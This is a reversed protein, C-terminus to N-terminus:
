LNQLLWHSGFLMLAAAGLASVGLLSFVLTQKFCEARYCVFAILLCLVGFPIALIIMM